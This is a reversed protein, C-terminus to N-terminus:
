QGALSPVTPRNRDIPLHLEVRRDPRAALYLYVARLGDDDDHAAVLALRFGHEQLTAVHGALEAPTTTIAVRRHGAPQGGPVPSPGAAPGPPPTTM